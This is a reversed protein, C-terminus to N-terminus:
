QNITSLDIEPIPASLNIDEIKGQRLKILEAQNEKAKDMKKLMTEEDMRKKAM